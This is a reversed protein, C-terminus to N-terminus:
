FKSSHEFPNALYKGMEAYDVGKSLIGNNKTVINKGIWNYDYYSVHM